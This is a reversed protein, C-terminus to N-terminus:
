QEHLNDSIPENNLIELLKKKHTELEALKKQADKQVNNELFIVFDKFLKEVQTEMFSSFLSKTEDSISMPLSNYVSSSGYDGSWYAIHFIKFDTSYDRKHISWYKKDKRPNKEIAEIKNLAHKFKLYDDLKSMGEGEM